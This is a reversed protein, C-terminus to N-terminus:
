TDRGFRILDYSKNMLWRKWGGESAKETIVWEDDADYKEDPPPPPPPDFDVVDRVDFWKMRM